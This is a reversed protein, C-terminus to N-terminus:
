PQASVPPFHQIFYMPSSLWSLWLACSFVIPVAHCGGGIRRPCCSVLLSSLSVCPLLHSPVVLTERERRGLTVSGLSSFSLSSFFFSVCPLLVRSFELGVRGSRLLHNELPDNM